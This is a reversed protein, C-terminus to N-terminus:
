LRLGFTNVGDSFSFSSISGAFNELINSNPPIPSSLTIRGYPCTFAANEPRMYLPLAVKLRDLLPFTNRQKLLPLVYTEGSESFRHECARCLLSQTMEFSKQVSVRASILVARGYLGRSM